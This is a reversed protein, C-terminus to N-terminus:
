KKKKKKDDETPPGNVDGQWAELLRPSYEWKQNIIKFKSIPPQYGKRTEVTECPAPDQTYWVDNRTVGIYIIGLLECALGVVLVVACPWAGWHHNLAQTSFVPSPTDLFPVSPKTASSSSYRWLRKQNYAVKFILKTLKSRDYNLSILRLAM